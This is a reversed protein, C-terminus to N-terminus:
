QLTTLHRVVCIGLVVWQILCYFRHLIVVAQDPLFWIEGYSSFSLVMHRCLINLVCCLCIVWRCSVLRYQYVPVYTVYTDMPYITVTSAWGLYHIVMKRLAVLSFLSFAWVVLLVDLLNWLVNLIVQLTVILVASKLLDILVCINSKVIMCYSDCYLMMNPLLSIFFFNLGNWWCDM